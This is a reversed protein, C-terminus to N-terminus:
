GTGTGAAPAKDAGIIVTVTADGALTQTKSDIPETDSIGLKNAV